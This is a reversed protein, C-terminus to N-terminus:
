RLRLEPAPRAAATVYEAVSRLGDKLGRYHVRELAADYPLWEYESHEVPNLIIDQQDVDTEVAFVTIIQVEHFRRNYITYAHEAAWVEKVVLGYQALERDFATTVSEGGQFVGSPIQWFRGGSFHRHAKAESTYLVLFLTGEPTRRYVWIDYVAANLIMTSLSLLSSSAGRPDRLLVCRSRCYTSQIEIFEGREAVSYVRVTVMTDPKYRAGCLAETMLQVGM